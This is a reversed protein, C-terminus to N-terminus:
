KGKTVDAHSKIVALSQSVDVLTRQIDKVDSRLDGLAEKVNVRNTDVDRKIQAVDMLSARKDAENAAYMGIAAAAILLMQLLTGTSVTPDFRFLQKRGPISDDEIM